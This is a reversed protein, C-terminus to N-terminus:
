VKKGMVGYIFYFKEAIIAKHKDTTKFPNMQEWNKFRVHVLERVCTRVSYTRWLSPTSRTYIM